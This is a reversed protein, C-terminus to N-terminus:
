KRERQKWRVGVSRGAQRNKEGVRDKDDVGYCWM